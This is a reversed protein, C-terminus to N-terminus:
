EAAKPEPDQVPDSPFVLQNPNDGVRDTFDQISDLAFRLDRIMQTLESHFESESSYSKLLGTLNVLAADLTVGIQQMDDTEVLTRTAKLTKNLEDLALRASDLTQELPLNNIKALLKNVQAGLLDIGSSTTPLTQYSQYTGIQDPEATADYDFNIYLSGTLLSGSKLTARLGDSVANEVAKALGVVGEASDNLSLRGPEIKLLIPVRYDLVDGNASDMLHQSIIREVSGIRLGRYTVPSGERLGRLSQDFQVIYYSFHRYPNEHTSIENPYLRFEALDSVPDGPETNLPLGFSVGGQVLSQLSSISLRVGETSLEASIGSVNWFRTSASILEDYPAHIFISYSVHNRQMDLETSEVTGVRFGRYLIPSGAYISSDTESTLTLRIGPTGLPTAPANNLGVFRRLGTTSEVGPSFEIFAGSLITGLGSVDLGSVRPRVVWFESDGSLYQRAVPELEVEVIVGSLDESINVDTVVGIDVNLLRVRTKNEEIGSATSFSIQVTPGQDLWANIALWLGLVVATIPVIWIASVRRRSSQIDAKAAQM